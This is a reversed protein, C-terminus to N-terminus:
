SKKPAQEEVPKAKRRKRFYRVIFYVPLVIVALIPIAFLVLWILINVIVKGGDVLAQLAKQVEVGPQWGGITIPEMAEKAQIYVSIASLSASERYYKIQGEIVEIQERVSTLERFIEIVEATEIARDLIEILQEEAARLNRLRSELDTVESTVDQGSVDESLIDVNPDAVLDKIQKLAADLQDAPVRITINANPVELGQSTTTKYLNSNVVFGQMGEAMDAIDEMAASVDGVVISLNANKIVIREGSAAQTTDVMGKEMVMEEAAFEMEMPPAAAVRPEEGVWNEVSDQSAGRSSAWPSLACSSLMASVTLIILWVKNRKMEEEKHIQILSFVDILRVNWGFPERSNGAKALGCPM